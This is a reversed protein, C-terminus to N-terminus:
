KLPPILACVLSPHREACKQVEVMLRFVNGKEERMEFSKKDKEFSKKYGYALPWAAFYADFFATIWLGRFADFHM